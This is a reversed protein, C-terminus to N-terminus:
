RSTGTSRVSILVSPIRRLQVLATNSLSSGASSRVELLDPLVRSILRVLHPAPSPRDGVVRHGYAFYLYAANLVDMSRVPIDPLNFAQDNVGIVMLHRVYEQLFPVQPSALIHGDRDPRDGLDLRSDPEVEGLSLDRIQRRDRDLV